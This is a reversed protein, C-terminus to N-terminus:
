INVKGSKRQIDEQEDIENEEILSILDQRDKGYQEVVQVDNKSKREGM